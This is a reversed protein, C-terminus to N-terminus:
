NSADPRGPERTRLVAAPVGAAVVGGPLPRTVVAGAGVVSGAGVDCMVVAASGVWTGAGIRVRSVAIEQERIPRALDDTGHTRAGSTVHVGAALLVDPELTVLGLHCRPGVYANAGVRAGAKSFLVGFCITATPHCEDLVLSLFARRLYRGSLGPLLSVAESFHEVARDRGVAARQLLFAFWLPLVALLALGRAARKLGERIVASV